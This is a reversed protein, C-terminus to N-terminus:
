ARRHGRPGPKGAGPVRDILGELRERARQLREDAQQRTLRNESVAREVAQRIPALLADRLQDRSQGRAAAAQALSKGQRLEDLLQQPTLGLVDAAARLGGGQPGPGPHPSRDRRGPGDGRGWAPFQGADIREKLAKAREQSLRGAQVAEDVMEKAAQRAADTLRQESLGLIRAVRVLLQQVMGGSGQEPPGAAYAPTCAASGGLLVASLALGLWRRM